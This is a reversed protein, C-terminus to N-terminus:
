VENFEPLYKVTGSHGTLAGAKLELIMFAEVPADYECRINYKVSPVFGFRPYYGPHGLLVIYDYGAKKCQEIGHRILLSGIGRRQFEPLVAVPALGVGRIGAQIPDLTVPSFLIHGTICGESLAVLSSIYAKKLRLKDVLDAEGPGPFAEMNVKRIGALDAPVEERFSVSNCNISNGAGL